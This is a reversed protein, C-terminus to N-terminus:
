ATARSGPARWGINERFALAGEQRPRRSLCQRRLQLPDTDSRGDNYGAFGRGWQLFTRDPGMSPGRSGCRGQIIAPRPMRALSAGLSQPPLQHARRARRPGPKMATRSRAHHSRRLIRRHDVMARSTTFAARGRLARFGVADRRDVLERSMTSSSGVGARSGSRITKAPRATAAAPASTPIVVDDANVVLSPRRDRHAAPATQRRDHDKAGPRRPREGPPDDRRRRVPNHAPRTDRGRRCAAQGGDALTTVRLVVGGRGGM